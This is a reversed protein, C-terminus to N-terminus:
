QFKKLLFRLCLVTIIKLAVMLVVMLGMCTKISLNLHLIQIPNPTYLNTFKRNEFENRVIAEFGYRIPSLYQLWGIWDQYTNLNTFFGSFLVFPMMLIPTFYCATESNDFLSGIVYGYSSTSFSILLLVAYFLFIQNLSVELGVGFYTIITFMLPVILLIPIEMFDKALFYPLTSYLHNSQERLFLPREEIFSLIVGVLSVFLQVCCCYFMMGCFSMVEKYSDKPTKWFISLSLFSIFLM